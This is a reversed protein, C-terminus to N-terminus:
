QQKPVRHLELSSYRMRNSLRRSLRLRGRGSNARFRLAALDAGAGSNPSFCVDSPRSAAVSKMLVCGVVRTPQHIRRTTLACAAPYLIAIRGYKESQFHYNTFFAFFIREAKPAAFFRLV